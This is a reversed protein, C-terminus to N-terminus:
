REKPIKKVGVKKFDDKIYGMIDREEKENLDQLGGTRFLAIKNASLQFIKVYNIKIEADKNKIKKFYVLRDEIHDNLVSSWSRWKNYNNAKICEKLNDEVLDLLKNMPITKM